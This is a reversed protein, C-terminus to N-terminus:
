QDCRLTLCSSTSSRRATTSPRWLAAQSDSSSFCFFFVFLCFFGTLYYSVNNNNEIVGLSDFSAESLGFKALSLDGVVPVVQELDDLSLELKYLNQAALIRKRGEAENDSRVLCLINM